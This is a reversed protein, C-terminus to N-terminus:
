ILSIGANNFAKEFKRVRDDINAKTIDNGSLKSAVSLTEQDAAYLQLVGDLSANRYTSVRSAHPDFGAPVETVDKAVQKLVLAQGHKKATHQLFQANFKSISFREPDHVNLYISQSRLTERDDSVEWVAAISHTDNASVGGVLSHGDGKLCNFQRTNKSNIWQKPGEAYKRDNSVIKSEVSLVTSSSPLGEVRRVRPGIHFAGDMIPKVIEISTRGLWWFPIFSDFSSKGHLKERIKKYGTNLKHIPVIMELGDEPTWRIYIRNRDDRYGTIEHEAYSTYSIEDRAQLYRIEDLTAGKDQVIIEGATDSGILSQIEDVTPLNTFPETLEVADARAKVYGVTYPDPGPRNHRAAANYAHTSLSGFAESLDIKESGTIVEKHEVKVDTMSPLQPATQESDSSGASEGEFPDTEIKAEEEGFLDKAVESVDKSRSLFDALIKHNHRSKTVLRRVLRNWDADEGLLTISDLLQRLEQITVPKEINAATAMIYLTVAAEIYGHGEHTDQLARRVISPPLRDFEIIPLRRQLPESLEREDNMTVLVVLNDLNATVDVDAYVLRGSQLFEFLLSDASRRTKDWEDILLLTPRKQSSRIAQIIPGEFTRIGSDADEDPMFRMLLHEERVDVTCQYFVSRMGFIDALTKAIQTKGSGAPGALFAGKTPKTHLAVTIDAALEKTAFYGRSRLATQLSTPTIQEPVREQTEDNEAKGNTAEPTTVPADQM